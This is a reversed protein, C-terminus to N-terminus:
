KFKQLRSALKCIKYDEKIKELSKTIKLDINLGNARRLLMDLARVSLKWLTRHLTMLEIETFFPFTSEEPTWRHMLFYNEMKPPHRKPGLSIHRGEISIDLDNDVMDKM